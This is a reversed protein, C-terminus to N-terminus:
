GETADCNRATYIDELLEATAAPLKGNQLGLPEPLHDVEYDAQFCNVAVDLPWDIEYGINHLRMRVVHDDTGSNCEPVITKGFTFPGSPSGTGWEVDVFAPCAPPLEFSAFGDGDAQRVQPSDHFHARVFADPLPKSAEDHVRIRLTRNRLLEFDHTEQSRRGWEPYEVGGPPSNDGPPPPQVGLKRDFFYLEVRRNFQKVEESTLSGAEGEPIPFNEGCGHTRITVDPPLSTEDLAMYETILAQRTQPGAIGDVALGRTRQFWLIPPEEPPRTAYDPMAGVMDHDEKTGWRKEFPMASSYFDLWTAVDDQLFAAVSKARELSLPDNISPEGSTDTHGVVFLESDPNDDYLKKLQRIDAM